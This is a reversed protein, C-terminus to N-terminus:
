RFHVNDSERLSRCLPCVPRNRYIPCFLPKIYPGRWDLWDKVLSATKMSTFAIRGEGFPDAKSRRIIVRLTGDDRVQGRKTGRNYRSDAPKTKM